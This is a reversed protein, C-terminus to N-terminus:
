CPFHVSLLPFPRKRKVLTVEAKAVPEAESPKEESEKSEPEHIEEREYLFELPAKSAGNEKSEGSEGLWEGCFRCKKAGPKILEACIPCKIRDEAM